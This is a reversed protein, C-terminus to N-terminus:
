TEFPRFRGAVVEAMRIGDMAASTIGGAYGAGEGCPYLGKVDSELDQNRPIRVPSSTRSEIGALIGDPRDFGKIIQGFRDIGEVLAESLPEPMLRRLNAFQYGGCFEPTVEGFEQSEKNEKFDHYLQVPIKGQGLKWAQEELKRQFAVGALPDGEAGGFDEPTVTVIVASNANKGDRAHNSMGNVALRGEESSANVVYGGPCMCFTYVGRGNQAQHTLKYSAAGLLKAAEKGYQSEDILEQPHQIRLGVAFAKPEMPVNKQHLVEFTDRASHGVALVAVSADLRETGNVMVGELRRGGDTGEEILFDTVCAHFRVQGGLRIIENRMRSVVQSLVDTGIHPKNVYCISPDAGFEAFIRLVEGNRGSVDKVLTNLKGDSFTGAGGEGFQVNCQPDLKGGKWFTEVAEKREEVSGGRELLIPRYGAKALMLGCFLGAPGTGIIIPPNALPETGCPPFQYVTEKKIVANRNKARKIIAEEQDAWIDLVYSYTIDERKRADISQKVIEIKKIQHLPTKLAKAAKKELEERSHRIPLKVQSLRIM